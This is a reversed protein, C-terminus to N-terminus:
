VGLGLMQRWKKNFREVVQNVNIQDILRILAGDLEGDCTRIGTVDLALLDVSDVVGNDNKLLFQLRMQWLGLRVDAKAAIRVRGGNMGSLLMSSVWAIKNLQRNDVEVSVVNNCNCHERDDFYPVLEIEVSGCGRDHKNKKDM